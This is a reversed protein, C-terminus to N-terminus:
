ELIPPTPSSPIGDEHTEYIVWFHEPVSRDGDWCEDEGFCKLCDGCRDCLDGCRPQAEEIRLLKMGQHDYIHRKM